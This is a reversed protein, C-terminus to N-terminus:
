LNLKDPDQRTDWFVLLEITQEPSKVRYFLTIQETLVCRHTNSKPSYEFLAPHQRISNLVSETREFFTEVEKSTWENSLYELINLYSIRARPSWTIHYPM